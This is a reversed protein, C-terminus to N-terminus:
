AVHMHQHGEATHVNQGLPDVLWVSHMETDQVYYQIKNETINPLPHAPIFRFEIIVLNLEKDYSRGTKVSHIIHTYKRTQNTVCDNLCCFPGPIDSDNKVILHRHKRM